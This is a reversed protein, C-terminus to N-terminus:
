ACIVKHTGHRAAGAAPEEVVDCGTRVKPPIPHRTQQGLQHKKAAPAHFQRQRQLCLCISWSGALAGYGQVFRPQPQVPKSEGNTQLQSWPHASCLVTSFRFRTCVICPRMTAPVAEAVVLSQPDGM